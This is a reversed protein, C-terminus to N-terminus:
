VPKIETLHEGLCYKPHLPAPAEMGRGQHSIGMYKMCYLLREPCLMLQLTSPFTERAETCHNFWLRNPPPLFFDQQTRDLCPLGLSSLHSHYAQMVMTIASGGAGRWGTCSWEESERIMSFHLTIGASLSDAPSILFHTMEWSNLLKKGGRPKHKKIVAARCVVDKSSQNDNRQTINQSAKLHCLSLHHLNPPPASLGQWKWTMFLM